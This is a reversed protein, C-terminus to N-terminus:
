ERAAFTRKQDFTALRWSCALSAPIKGICDNSARAKVLQDYTCIQRFFRSDDDEIDDAPSEMM